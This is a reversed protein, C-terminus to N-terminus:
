KKIWLCEYPETNDIQHRVRIEGRSITAKSAFSSKVKGGCIEKNSLTLIVQRPNSEDRKNSEKIVCNPNEDSPMSVEESRLSFSYQGFFVGKKNQLVRFDHCVAKDGSKLVYSGKQLFGIEQALVPNGTFLLGLLIISKLKLFM